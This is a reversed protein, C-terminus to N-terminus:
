IILTIEMAYFYSPCPSLVNKYARYEQWSHLLSMSTEMHFRRESSSVWDENQSSSSLINGAGWVCVGVGTQYDKVM